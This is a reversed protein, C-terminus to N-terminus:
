RQIIKYSIINNNFIDLATGKGLGINIITGEAKFYANTNTWGSSVNPMTSYSNGTLKSIDKVGISQLLNTTNSNVKFEILIGDYKYSYAKTSSIFTEGTAPIKGTDILTQYDTQSMARYYTTSEGTKGVALTKTSGTKTTVSAGDDICALMLKQTRSFQIAQHLQVASIVVMTIAIASNILDGVELEGSMGAVVTFTLQMGAYVVAATLLVAAVTVQALELLLITSISFMATGLALSMGFVELLSRTIDWGTTRNAFGFVFESESYHNM